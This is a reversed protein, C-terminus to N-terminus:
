VGPRGCGGVQQHGRLVTLFPVDVVLFLRGLTRHRRGTQTRHLPRAIRCLCRGSAGCESIRGLRATSVLPGVHYPHCSGALRLWPRPARTYASGEPAAYMQAGPHFDLWIGTIHHPAWKAHAAVVPRALVLIQLSIVPLATPGFRNDTDRTAYPYRTACPRTSAQVGAASAATVAFNLGSQRIGGRGRASPARGKCGGSSRVRGSVDRPLPRRRNHMEPCRRRRAGGSSRGPM